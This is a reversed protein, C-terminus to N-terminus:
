LFLPCFFLISLGSWKGVVPSGNDSFFLLVSDELMGKSELAQVIDGISNDLRSVMAAYTRRNKDSIYSFKNLEDNPAQLPANETGTHPALHSVFLFM